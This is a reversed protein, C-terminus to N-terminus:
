GCNGPCPKDLFNNGGLGGLQIVRGFAAICGLGTIVLFHKKFFQITNNLLNLKGSREPLLNM